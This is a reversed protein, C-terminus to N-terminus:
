LSHFEEGKKRLLRATLKETLPDTWASDSRMPGDMIQSVRYAIVFVFVYRGQLFPGELFAIMFLVFICGYVFVAMMWNEAKKLKTIVLYHSLLCFVLGVLGAKLLVDLFGNHAYWEIGGYLSAISTPGKGLLPSEMIQELAGQWIIRRGLFSDGKKLFREALNTISSTWFSGLTIWAQGLLMLVYLWWFSSNTGGPSNYLSKRRCFLYFQLGSLMIVVLIGLGCFVHFQSYMFSILFIFDLWSYRKRYLIKRLGIFCFAAFYYCTMGNDTELFNVRGYVPVYGVGEPYFLMLVANLICLFSLTGAGAEILRRPDHYIGIEMFLMLGMTPLAHRAFFVMVEYIENNIMGSCFLIFYLVGYVGIVYNFLQKRVILSLYYFALVFFAAIKLYVVFLDGADSGAVIGQPFFFLVFLLPFMLTKGFIGGWEKVRNWVEPM